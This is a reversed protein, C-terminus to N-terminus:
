CSVSRCRLDTVLINNGIFMFCSVVEERRGCAESELDCTATNSGLCIATDLAPMSTLLDEQHLPLDQVKEASCCSLDKQGSLPKLFHKNFDSKCLQHQSMFLAQGMHCDLLGHQQCPFATEQPPQTFERLPSFYRM